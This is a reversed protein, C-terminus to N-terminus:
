LKYGIAVWYPAQESFSIKELGANEMLLKIEKKTFRKELKTGFRDLADNRMMYFDLDCYSSLPFNNINIKFKKLLRAIAVLPLYVTLAILDCIRSKIKFDLNCIGKRFIDSAAWIAKFWFPKNDFRYYLYVLFPAGPKLLRVCSNIAMQTDPVHHLVGLSYGFDMSCEDINVECASKNIYKCNSLSSLNNRCRELAKESPDICYLTRVKKSIFQAWRGTGCGMDFGISKSNLISKPMLSFYAEAMFRVEQQSKQNSFSFKEWELGFSDVVDQDKNTSIM